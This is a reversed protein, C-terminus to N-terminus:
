ARVAAAAEAGARTGGEIKKKWDTEGAAEGAVWFAASGDEAARRATVPRMVRLEDIPAASLAYEIGAQYPLEYAPQGPLAVCLLDCEVATKGGGPISFEVRRLWAGGSARAIRAGTITRIKEISGGGWGNTRETETPDALAAVEVGHHLLLEGASRL